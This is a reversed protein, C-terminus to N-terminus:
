TIKRKSMEEISPWPLSVGLRTGMAYNFVEYVAQIQKTSLQTTSEIDPYMATMVPKWLEQKVNELTPKIPLKVVVRMDQGSDALAEAIQTLYKHLSRNQLISRQKDDAHSDSETM